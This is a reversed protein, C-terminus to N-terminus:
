YLWRTVLITHNPHQQAVRQALECCDFHDCVIATQFREGNPRCLVVQAVAIQAPISTQSQM